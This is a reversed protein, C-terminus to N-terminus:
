NCYTTGGITSCSTGDSFYTTGGIKTSSSGDSGYTTGGITTYSSGDSGYTTGGINTYSNGNSHYTTGGIKTQTSGDSGYTTGGINTYSNGPSVFYDAKAVPLTLASLAALAVSGVLAKFNMKQIIEIVIITLAFKYLFKTEKSEFSFARIGVTSIYGFYLNSKGKKKM